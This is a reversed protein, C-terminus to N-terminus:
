DRTLFGPQEEDEEHWREIPRLRMKVPTKLSFPPV